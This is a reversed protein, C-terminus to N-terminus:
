APTASPKAAGRYRALVRRQMGFIVAGSLAVLAAMGLLPAATGATLRQLPPVRVFAENCTAELLGIYSWVM